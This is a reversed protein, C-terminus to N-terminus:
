LIHNSGHHEGRQVKGTQPPNRPSSGTSPHAPGLDGGGEGPTIQLNKRHSLWPEFGLEVEDPQAAEPLDSLMESGKSYLKYLACLVM